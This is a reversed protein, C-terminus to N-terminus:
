GHKESLFALQTHDAGRLRHRLDHADPKGSSPPSICELERPEPANKTRLRSTSPMQSTGAPRFDTRANPRSIVARREASPVFTKIKPADPDRLKAALQQLKQRKNEAPPPAPRNSKPREAAPQGPIPIPSPVKLDAGFNEGGEVADPTQGTLAVAAAQFADLAPRLPSLASTLIAAAAAGPLLRGFILKIM